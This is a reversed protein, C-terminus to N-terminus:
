PFFVAALISVVIIIIPIIIIMSHRTQVSCVFFRVLLLLLSSAAAYQCLLHHPILWPDPYWTLCTFIVRGAARSTRQNGRCPMTPAGLITGSPTPDLPTHYGVPHTLCIIASLM